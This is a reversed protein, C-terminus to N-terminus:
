RSWTAEGGGRRPVEGSRPSSIRAYFRRLADTCEAPKEITTWHGCRPLIEVRAGSIREGIARVAQPPAVADEDGTVMLTPCTIAAADAPQAQALADCSRAYGDPCQRMLSERVMAVAAPQRTRTEGSMAGQVITDAIAQMGAAGESRAKEGRAALGPRAVDPPALLPGFLALSRVLRPMAVALHFAVITGMSHGIVHAREVHTAACVRQIAQVFRDISLPGEVRASRGSGPLDPRVTRHRALLPMLPMWVNSTGGLGHILLVDEGTGEVEVAIREIFQTTM